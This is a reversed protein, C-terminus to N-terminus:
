LECRNVLSEVRMSIMAIQDGLAELGRTLESDGISPRPANTNPQESRPPESRVVVGFRQEATAVLKNMQQVRELLTRMVQAVPTSSEVSKPINLRDSTVGAVSGTGAGYGEM